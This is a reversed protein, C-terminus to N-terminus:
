PRRALEILCNWWSPWPLLILLAISVALLWLGCRGVKHDEKSAPPIYGCWLCVLGVFLGLLCLAQTILCAGRAWVLALETM